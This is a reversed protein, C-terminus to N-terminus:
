RQRGMMGGVLDEALPATLEWFLQADHARDEENTGALVISEFFRKYLRQRAVYIIAAEIGDRIPKQREQRAYWSAPRQPIEHGFTRLLDAAAM